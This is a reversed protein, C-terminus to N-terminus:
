TYINTSQSNRRLAKKTGQGEERKAADGRSVGKKIKIQGKKRNTEGGM